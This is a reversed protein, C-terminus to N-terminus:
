SYTQNNALLLFILFDVGAGALIGGLVRATVNRRGPAPPARPPRQCVPMQEILRTRARETTAMAEAYVRDREAVCARHDALAQEQRRGHACDIRANDVAGSVGLSIPAILTCGPAALMAALALTAVLKAIWVATGAVSRGM